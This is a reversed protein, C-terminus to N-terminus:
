QLCPLDSALRGAQCAPWRWDSGGGPSHVHNGPVLRTKAANSSGLLLQVNWLRNFGLGQQSGPDLLMREVAGLWHPSLQGPSLGMVTDDRLM